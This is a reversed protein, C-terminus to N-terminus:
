RTPSVQGASGPQGREEIRDIWRVQLAAALALATCILMMGMLAYAGTEGAVIAATISTLIAGVAVTLAGALGAASGALKPRVSMTGASCSPMTLGNGIGVFLTAGFLALANEFGALFLALGMMLGACGVIRGAIMMTTLAYRKAYRGSLFSGLGYGATISGIYVGLQAPSLGLLAVAVLPAGALFAYFAGRSFATCLAYGWYRRSRFLAPYTGFQKAFTESPSINTEGLDVWCLAFAVAGLGAYVIFSARWGFLADLGGGLMPGLMPAVAMAMSVYGIRSAAEQPPATDRIVALSVGWGAVVAGQLVRFGLFVWIDTTLACVLSAIAFVAMGALLVPRRGFRDSLPGLVLQLVATVALYGAISLSVLSYSVQFEAAMNALSPLFMNLSLVSLGSLLILTFLTPPSKASHFM